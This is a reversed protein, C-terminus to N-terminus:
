SLFYFFIEERLDTVNCAGDTNGLQLCIVSELFNKVSHIFGHISGFVVSSIHDRQHLQIPSYYQMFLTFLHFAGTRVPLHKKKLLSRGWRGPLLVIPGNTKSCPFFVIEQDPAEFLM